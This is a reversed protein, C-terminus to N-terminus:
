GVRWMVLTLEDMLQGRRRQCLLFTRRAATRNPLYDCLPFFLDDKGFYSDGEVLMIPLFRGSELFLRIRKGGKMFSFCTVGFSTRSESDLNSNSLVQTKRFFVLQHIDRLDLSKSFEPSWM